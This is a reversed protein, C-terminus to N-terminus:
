IDLAGPCTRAYHFIYQQAIGAVSKIDEPWGDPFLVSTARKMWVDMPCIEVRHFGYLLACDAVKRGVGKIKMLETRADDTSLTSIKGLDIEGSSVMKAAELLYRDRYGAHLPALSAIDLSALSSPTPFAYEDDGIQEGALHCLKEVIGGIRKINNNQSIIFTILAEWSDQQLIRIGPAYLIADGISKHDALRAKVAGYDTDLDFYRRWFDANGDGEIHLCDGSMWVEAAKDVAIGKFRGDSVERWRFSQGCDLTQKLDLDTIGSIVTKERTITM